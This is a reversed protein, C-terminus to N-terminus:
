KINNQLPKQKRACGRKHAALAKLNNASYLKCLDCKLGPKSVPILYHSSLYRDLSPFKFEDIQSVLQKQQEKLMDVLAVKQTMFTHYENNISDMVDKPITMIEDKKGIYQSLKNTLNDIIDVASSILVGNYEVNHLCVVVRNNHIEIDYNKKGSIGSKNSILIGNSNSDDLITLFGHITETSVNEETDLSNLIVNQRHLRKLTFLSSNTKDSVIEASPFLPTLVVKLPLSTPSIVTRQQQVHEINDTIIQLVKDQFRTQNVDVYTQSSAIKSTLRDEMSSLSSHIPQQLNQMLMSLKLDFNQVFEKINNNDLRTSINGYDSKLSKCMEQINEIIVASQQSNHKSFNTNFLYSTKEILSNHTKELLTHVNVDPSHLMKEFGNMLDRKMSALEISLTRNDDRTCVSQTTDMKSYLPSTQELFHMMAINIDEFCLEPNRSYFLELQQKSEPSISCPCTTDINM